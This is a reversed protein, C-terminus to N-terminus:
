FQREFYIDLGNLVGREVAIGVRGGDDIDLELGARGGLGADRELTRTQEVTGTLRQEAGIAGYHGGLWLGVRSGLRWRTDLAIQWQRWEVVQSLGAHGERVRLYVYSGTLEARLVRGAYLASRLAPGGYFGDPERGSTVAQDDSLAAYGLLLGTQLTPDANGYASIGVRKITADVRGLHDDFRTEHRAFHLAFDLPPTEYNWTGASAAASLLSSLFLLRRPIRHRM